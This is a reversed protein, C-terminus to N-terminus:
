FPFRQLPIQTGTPLTLTATTASTFVLTITGVDNNPITPPQYAGTLTQGNGFQQWTGTYTTGDAMAAPGSAYWIANGNAAYMFGGIFLNNDSHVEIVFGRGAEAPNYWFGTQPTFQPTNSVFQATVFHSDSMMVTCTGMGSCDGTWGSFTYGTLATATLTITGGTYSDSCIGPCDIGTPASTVTGGTQATVTLIYDYTYGYTAAASQAVCLLIAALALRLNM